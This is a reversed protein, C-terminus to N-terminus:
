LRGTLRAAALSSTTEQWPVVSMVTRLASPVRGLPFPVLTRLWCGGAKVLRAFALWEDITASGGLDTRAAGLDSIVLVCTPREPPRYVPWPRPGTGAGAIGTPCGAFRRVTVADGLLDTIQRRLVLADLAFPLMAGSTDILVEAGARLTPRPRRRFEVLRGRAVADILAPVDPDAAAAMAGIAATLIARAQGSPFLPNPLVDAALASGPPDLAAVNPPWPGPEPEAPEVRILPVSGDYLEL